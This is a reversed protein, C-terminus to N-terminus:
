GHKLGDITNEIIGVKGTTADLDITTPGQTTSLEYLLNLGAESVNVPTKLHLVAHIYPENLTEFFHADYTESCGLIDIDATRDKVSRQPNDRDRGLSVEISNLCAKVQEAALQSKIVALSNIFDHRTQMNEPKTHVFPFALLPGFHEALAQLMNVSNAQPQINSGLSLYFIM